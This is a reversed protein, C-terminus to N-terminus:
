FHIVVDAKGFCEHILFEEVSHHNVKWVYFPAFVKSAYFYKIIAHFNVSDLM